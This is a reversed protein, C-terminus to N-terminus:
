SSFIFNTRSNVTAKGTNFYYKSKKNHFFTFTVTAPANPEKTMLPPIRNYKYHKIIISVGFHLTYIM